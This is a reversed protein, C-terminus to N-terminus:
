VPLPSLIRHRNGCPTAKASAFQSLAIVSEVTLGQNTGKADHLGGTAQVVALHQQLALVPDPELDGTGAMFTDLRRSAQEQLGALVPEEGVVPIAGQGQSEADRRLGHQHSADARRRVRKRTPTLHRRVPRIGREVDEGPRRWSASLEPLSNARRAGPAKQLGTGVLQRQDARALAGGALAFEPFRQVDSAQFAQRQQVQDFIVAVGDGRRHLTLGRAAADRLENGPKGFRNVM